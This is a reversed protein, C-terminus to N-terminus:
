RRSESAARRIVSTLVPLASRLSYRQEVWQRGAAGMRRRRHPDAALQRFAALWEEGSKALLGCSPPVADINAGVPSAIVPIACAMCQILKYACKGRAWPSDPLPMVGVDFQQILPVEQELTWPLEIVEVGAIAPAPGGVVLLRVPHELALRELPTVLQQLYHATSPSGIWGVTFAHDAPAVPQPLAPRYHETDVVSPLLAVNANFRRAHAALESNGATIAMAAAMLCDIKAGLLPQLWRLRGKRYKLHFADDCDYLFPVQLLLRELWGPWLPLLDGYVILLDFQKARLLVGLRRGYAVLLAMVSPKEGAFRRQLYADDLLSLIQLQIGHAALGRQFQSLRVRHSAAQPGYLSFCLVHIVKM